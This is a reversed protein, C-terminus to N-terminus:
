GEKETFIDTLLPKVLEVISTWEPNNKVVLGGAIPLISEAIAVLVDSGKEPDIKGDDILKKIYPALEKILTLALLIIEITGM